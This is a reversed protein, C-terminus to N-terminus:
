LSRIIKTYTQGVKEMSDRHALYVMGHDVQVTWSSILGTKLAKWNEVWNITGGPEAEYLDRFQRCTKLAWLPKRAAIGLRIAGSTGTNACEYMFATATCSALGAVIEEAPRFGGHFVTLPNIDRLERAREETINNCYLKLGWGVEATLEALRNYNKWPFDWGVTGLTPVMSLYDTNSQIAPGLIGQRLYTVAKGWAMGIIDMPEHIITHDVVPVLTALRPCDEVRERTDHYTLLVKVGREQFEEIHATTWRSHLGDHHNLWLAQMPPEVASLQTLAWNPDLAEAYPWWHIEPDAKRAAEIVQRSHEAIGCATGWSTAVLVRMMGQGKRSLTYRSPRWEM